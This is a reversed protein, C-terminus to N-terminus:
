DYRITRQDCMCVSRANNMRRFIGEMREDPMDNQAVAVLTETDAAILKSKKSANDITNGKSIESYYIHTHPHISDSQFYININSLPPALLVEYGTGLDLL